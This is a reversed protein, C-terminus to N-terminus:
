LTLTALSDIILRFILVLTCPRMLVKSNRSPRKLDIDKKPYNTLHLAFASKRVKVCSLIKVCKACNKRFISAHVLQFTIM